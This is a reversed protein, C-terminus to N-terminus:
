FKNKSLFTGPAAMYASSNDLCMFFVGTNLWCEDHLSNYCGIDQQVISHGADPLLWEFGPPEFDFSLVQIGISNYFARTVTL